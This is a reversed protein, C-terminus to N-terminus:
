PWEVRGRLGETIHISGDAAVLMGEAEPWEALLTLGREPGLVFAATALADAYTASDAVVTVSQCARAPYGTRPDLLHHYRQGGLEFYREYDGSTVVAGEDVLLTALVQDASRPHRIGIRWSRKEPRGILVMDGGANIAARTLNETRLLRAALDVGYGKAIGGLDLKSKPSAKLLKGDALRIADAGTGKLAKAIEDPGPVRPDPSTFGWLEVLRGLTLDFAGDSRQAVDLGARIVAQTDDSVQIEQLENFRSLESDARHSSMLMEIRDMETFAAEIQQHLYLPDDGTVSIEVLTGMIIRSRQLTHQQQGRWWLAALLIVCALVALRFRSNM